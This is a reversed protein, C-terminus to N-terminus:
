LDKGEVDLNLHEIKKKKYVKEKILELILKDNKDLCGTVLILLVYLSIFLIGLVILTLLNIEIFQKIFFLLGTPILAVFTINIM